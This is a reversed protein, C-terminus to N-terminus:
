NSSAKEELLRQLTQRLADSSALELVTMGQRDVLGVDAGREIITAAAREHDRGLPIVPLDGSQQDFPTRINAEYIM